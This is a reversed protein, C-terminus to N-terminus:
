PTIAAHCRMPGTHRGSGNKAFVATTTAITAASHNPLFRGRGQSLAPSLTAGVGIVRSSHCRMAAMRTMPKKTTRKQIPKSCAPPVMFRKASLCVSRWRAPQSIGADYKWAILGSPITSIPGSMAAIHVRTSRERKASGVGALSAIPM